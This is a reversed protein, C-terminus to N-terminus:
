VALGPHGLMAIIEADRRLAARASGLPVTLRRIAVPRAGLRDALGRHVPGDPGMGIPGDTRYRAQGPLHHM